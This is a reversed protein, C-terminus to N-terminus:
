RDARREGSARAWWGSSGRTPRRAACFVAEAAELGFIVGPAKQTILARARRRPAVTAATTVDGAGIDEALARRVLAQLDEM